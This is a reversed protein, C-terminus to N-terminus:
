YSVWYRRPPVWRGYPDWHGPVYVWHGPYPSYYYPPPGPRIIGSDFLSGALIGAGAGMAAGRANGTLGYGLLAGGAGGTAACGWLALALPLVLCLGLTTRFKKVVFCGVGGRAWGIIRQHAAAIKYSRMKPERRGRWMLSITKLSKKKTEHSRGQNVCRESLPCPIM